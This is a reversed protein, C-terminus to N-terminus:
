DSATGTVTYTHGQIVKRLQKGESKFQPHYYEKQSLPLPLSKITSMEDSVAKPYIHGYPKPLEQSM